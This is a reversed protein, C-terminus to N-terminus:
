EEVPPAVVSRRGFVISLSGVAGFASRTDGSDVLTGAADRSKVHTDALMWVLALDAKLGGRIWGTGATFGLIDQRFPPSVTMESVSSVDPAALTAPLADPRTFFGARLPLDGRELKAVYELGARIAFVPEATVVGAQTTGGRYKLDVAGLLQPLLRFSGGVAAFLQSPRTGDLTVLSGGDDQLWIRGRQEGAYLLSIGLAGDPVPRFFYGAQLAVGGASSREASRRLPETSGDYLNVATVELSGRATTSLWALGASFQQDGEADPQIWAAGVATSAADERLRVTGSLSTDSLPPGGPQRALSLNLPEDVHVVLRETEWVGAMLRGSGLQPTVVTWDLGEPVIYSAQTVVDKNFIRGSFAMRDVSGGLHVLGEGHDVGGMAATAPNETVDGTADPLGVSAGGMGAAAAGALAIRPLWCVLVVALVRMADMM